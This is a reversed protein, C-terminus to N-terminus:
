PCDSHGKLRLEERAHAGCRAREQGRARGLRRRQLGRRRVPHLAGCCEAEAQHSSGGSGRQRNRRRDPTQDQRRGLLGLELVDHLKLRHKIITPSDAGTIARQHLGDREAADVVARPALGLATGEEYLAMGPHHLEALYSGLGLKQGQALSNRDISWSSVLVARQLLDMIAPHPRELLGIDVPMVNDDRHSAIPPCLLPEVLQDLRDAFAQVVVGRLNQAVARGRM